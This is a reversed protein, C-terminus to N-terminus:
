IFRLELVASMRGPPMYKPITMNYIIINIVPILRSTIMDVPSYIFVSLTRLGPASWSNFTLPIFLFWCFFIFLLWHPLLLILLFHHAPLQVFVANVSPHLSWSTLYSLQFNARLISFISTEPPRVLILKQQPSSLCFSSCVYVHCTYVVRKLLKGTFSLLFIPYHFFPSISNLISNNSYM